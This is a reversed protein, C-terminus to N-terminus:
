VHISELLEPYKDFVLATGSKMAIAIPTTVDLQKLFGCKSLEQMAFEPFSDLEKKDSQNNMGFPFAVTHIKDGLFVALQTSSGGIGMSGVITVPKLWERKVLNNYMCQTAKLEYYGEEDQPMFYCGPQYGPAGFLTQMSSNLMLQEDKNAKFYHVRLPGTIMVLTKADPYSKQMQKQLRRQNEDFEVAADKPKYTGLELVHPSSVPEDKGARIEDLFYTINEDPVYGYVYVKDGGSGCNIVKVVWEKPWNAKSLSRITTFHNDAVGQAVSTNGCNTQTPTDQTTKIFGGTVKLKKLVEVGVRLAQVPGAQKADTVKDYWNTKADFDALQAPTVMAANYDVCKAESM